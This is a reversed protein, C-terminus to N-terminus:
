CCRLLFPKLEFVKKTQTSIIHFYKDQPIYIYPVDETRRFLFHSLIMRNIAQHGIIVINDSKGSLFIAKKIGRYVRDKLTVYGEGEPYVYNYKDKTRAEHVAPYLHKIEEYTLNECIGANIEDFESIAVVNCEERSELLPQATQTTRKKTSTFICPIDLDRFHEAMAHAQAWGKETLGSNGGIRYEINYQTQGHRILYLNKVWDSVLIDRVRPYFPIVPSVRERLIRNRVSDITVFNTETELPVYSKKYMEIRDFLSKFADEESLHAFEYGRTKRAISAAVLDKDDNICEVYFIPFEDLHCEIKRRRALTTNTADLVAVQGNGRLYEKAEYINVLAIEERLAVCRPNNSDYFEAHSTNEPLLRRRVDGNNFVQVRIDDKELNEKLKTAIVSKGRAPLGVMAICLKREM